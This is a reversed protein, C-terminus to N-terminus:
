KIRKKETSSSIYKKIEGFNPFIAENCNVILYWDKISTFKLKHFFFLTNRQFYSRISFYARAHKKLIRM